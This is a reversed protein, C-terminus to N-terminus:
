GAVPRAAPNGAATRDYFFARPIGIRAGTLGNANLFKTYDRAPPPPCKKTAADNSDPAAGELVGFMIAADAVTRTM